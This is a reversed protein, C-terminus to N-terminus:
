RHPRQLFWRTLQTRSTHGTKALVRRVHSEVTRESLVLANAVERNSLGEAVLRVVQHERATLPDDARARARAATSEHALFADAEGLLGPMDLRRADTAAARALEVARAPDGTAALARALGLRGRAVFPRAGLAVDVRLGAEFHAVAAEPEGCGLDLEGLTRDVSGHYFVTGAGTAPSGGYLRGFADRVARCGDVDGLAPALACLSRLTAVELASNYKEVAAVLPQYSARAGDTDGTLLRALAIGALAVAPVNAQNADFATWGQPLEAPDGRLEALCVTLALHTGRVSEDQWSAAIAAAASAAERCSTFDGTLAAIASERRLVHWRVLPLGTRDALARMAGLGQRAAALDARHVANDSLWVHAWLEALPRGAPEALEIARHALGILEDNAWPRWHLMARARIADLEANPDGSAAADALARASWSAAEDDAAIELLACALQAEVRARLDLPAGPTLARLARRCLDAIRINLAPHGFGQIVIAARAAIDARHTRLGEDAARECTTLSQQANGALYQVRALDLLLEARDAHLDAATGRDVADLAFTLYSVAEDHAGAARAVDAARIAWTVARGPEGARDWHRVVAGAREDRAVALPELLEAARRHLAARRGPQISAYAAEHVLAHAFRIPGGAPPPLEVLGAPEALLLREIAAGATDVDLLGALLQPEAQPGLVSLAQVADAAPPGAARMAVAVLRRLEPAEGLAVDWAARGQLPGVAIRALTRLYLPSGGSLDAAHRVASPDAHEVAASLFAAADASALPGLMLTETARAPLAPLGGGADLRHTGVVLLPLRQVEAAVRELLRLTAQDAWQLDDLVILLGAGTRAHAELADVVATDAAFTAAAADEASGHERAASGAILAEMAARPGPLTRVARAWPWLAPMGSDNVAAGWGVPASAAAAVFEQVLRTKGIGAPGGVLVLSGAGARADALRRVLHALEARRGVFLDIPSSV